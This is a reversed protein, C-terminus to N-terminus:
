AEEETDLARAAERIADAIDLLAYAVALTAAVTPDTEAERVAVAANLRAQERMDDSM